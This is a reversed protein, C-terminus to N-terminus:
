EVEKPAIPEERDKSIDQVKKPVKPVPNVQKDMWHTQAVGSPTSTVSPPVVVAKRQLITGCSKCLWKKEGTEANFFNLSLRNSECKPCLLTM